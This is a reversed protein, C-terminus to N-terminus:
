GLLRGLRQLDVNGGSLTVGVRAGRTPTVVGSLLAALALAGTPEVVLKLREFCFRTADVIQAESVTVIDDVLALVLPFTLAGLSPTRAGDAITPPNRVTHLTRTRLSRAADDALEPEVGVVRCEPALARAALACGSLLGGGGCCVLLLDLPGADALLEVAVTGQGAIVDVHDFPPIVALGQKRALELGLEERSATQPDYPIVKAGYGETAVRKIRPADDPMVVTVPVRLLRGALALAQGHNGSSFTLVGQRPNRERHVALANYAGRLKFAGSRQLNEAKLAVRCGLRADLTRSTVAPTRHVVGDLRAAAREVDAFTVPLESDTAATM